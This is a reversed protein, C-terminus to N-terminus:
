RGDATVAADGRATDGPALSRVGVWGAFVALTALEALLLAGTGAVLFTAGVAARLGWLVAVVAVAAVLRTGAREGTRRRRLGDLLVAGAGGLYALALFPAHPTTPAPFAGAGVLGLFAAGALAAVARGEPEDASDSLRWLGAAFVLGLVGALVLGLAFVLAGPAGPRGLDSLRARVPLARVTSDLALAVGVALVLAAASATGALRTVTADATRDSM